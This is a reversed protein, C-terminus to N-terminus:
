SRLRKSIDEERPSDALITKHKRVVVRGKVSGPIRKVHKRFTMLVAVAKEGRAKSHFVALEAAEQETRAPLSERKSPNKVIVHAGSFGDAHFWFDATAAVRFTVIENHKASRGVLIEFGESSRYKLYSKGGEDISASDSQSRSKKMVRLKTMTTKLDLLELYDSTNALQDELCRLKCLEKEITDLRKQLAPGSREIKRALKYRKEVQESPSLKPNLEVELLPTGAELYNDVIIKTMGPKLKHFNAHLMDAQMRITNADPLNDQDAITLSKSKELQQIRQNLSATLSGALHKTEVTDVTLTEWELAAALISEYPYVEEATTDIPFAHLEWRNQHKVIQPKFARTRLIETIRSVIIDVLKSNKDKVANALIKAVAPTMPQISNLISRWLPEGTVSLEELSRTNLRTSFEIFKSKEDLFPLTIKEGPVRPNVPDKSRPIKTFCELIQGSRKESCVINSRSGRLELWLERPEGWEAATMRIVLFRDPYPVEVAIIKSGILKKRFSRALLTNSTTQPIFDPQYFIGPNRGRSQLRVASTNERENRTGVTLILGHDGIQFCSRIRCHLVHRNLEHASALLSFYDM